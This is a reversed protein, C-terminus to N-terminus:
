KGTSGFGGEGRETQTLETVETVDPTVIVELILQAIRDGQAIVFDTDSHNFLIVGLPGTYDHDVVGAGVDIGSNKALGSRPAIRGYTGYPVTVSLDTKVMERSRAKVTMDVSSCLDYGAAHNNARKPLTATTSLKKVKFM